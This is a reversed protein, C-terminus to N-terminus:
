SKFYFHKENNFGEIFGINSHESVLTYEHKIFPDFDKRRYAQENNKYCAEKYFVLVENIPYNSSIKIRHLQHCEGHPPRFQHNEALEKELFRLLLSSMLIEIDTKRYGQQELEFISQQIFGLIM